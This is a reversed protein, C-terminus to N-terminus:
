LRVLHAIALRYGELGLGVISGSAVRSVYSHHRFAERALINSIHVEVVPIGESRLASVADAVAISTHSYAAPNLVVGDCKQGLAAHLAQLLGEEGNHQSYTLEHGEFDSKLQAFYDEFSDSGYLLPERKGLLNLNPGNIVIIKKM